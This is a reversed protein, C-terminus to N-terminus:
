GFMCAEPLAETVAFGLGCNLFDGSTALVGIVDFLDPEFWVEKRYKAVRGLNLFKQHSVERNNVYQASIRFNHISINNLRASQLDISPGCIDISILAPSYIEICSQLTTIDIDLPNYIDAHCCM